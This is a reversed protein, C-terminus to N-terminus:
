VADRLRRLANRIRPPAQETLSELESLRLGRHAVADQLRQYAIGGRKVLSLILAGAVVGLLLGVGIGLFLRGLDDMDPFVERPLSRGVAAGVLGGAILGLVAGLGSGVQSASTAIEVSQLFSRARQTPDRPVKILSVDLGLRRVLDDLGSGASWDGVELRTSNVVQDVPRECLDCLWQMGVLHRSIPIFYLRTVEHIEEIRVAEPGGCSACVGLTWGVQRSVNDIGVHVLIHM